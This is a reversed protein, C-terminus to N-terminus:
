QLKILFILNDDKDFNIMMVMMSVQQIKFLKLIVKPYIYGWTPDDRHTMRRFIFFKRSVTNM